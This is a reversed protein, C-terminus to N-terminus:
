IIFYETLSNSRIDVYCSKGISVRGPELRIYKNIWNKNIFFEYMKYGGVVAYILNYKLLKIILRRKTGEYEKKVIVKKGILKDSFSPTSFVNKRNENELLMEEIEETKNIKDDEMKADAELLNIFQHNKKIIDNIQLMSLSFLSELVLKNKNYVTNVVFVNTIMVIVLFVISIILAIM